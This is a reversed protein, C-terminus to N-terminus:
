YRRMDHDMARAWADIGGALSQVHTFGAQRLTKAAVLSRVGGHCYAVIPKDRPLRDLHADLEALPLLTAGDLHCIDWEWPNRVDLLFHDANTAQLAALEEVSIELDELGVEDTGEEHGEGRCFAEYDILERVTPQDGCVPCDRRREYRFELFEAALVDVVLLRGVLPSAAAVGAARLIWKLVEAAQLTGILGPLVGLVGAQACSPVLGPPPPQPFRCRYCPSGGAPDYVTVQGEFQYISGDVLPKGLLVCADNILYRTPFNDCGNLVLDYGNVIDLANASTLWGEHRIVQVHPNIGALTDAAAALKPRGVDSERYLLQRQLNTLEVTDHDVLGITGVGAAALYMAAPAGLGGAGLLLVKAAALAEQGPLGVEALSLHRGYRRLEDPSLGM